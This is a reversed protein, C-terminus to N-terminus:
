YPTREDRREERERRKEEKARREDEKRLERGRKEDAESQSTTLKDATWGVAKVPMTVVDAATRVLCGGLALPLFALLVRM